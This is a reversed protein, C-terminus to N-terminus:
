GSHASQDHDESRPIMIEVTTGCNPKSEITLAGKEGYVHKLIQVVYSLGIGTHSSAEDRYSSYAAEIQEADMGEGQDIVRIRIHEEDGIDLQLEIHGAGEKMGHHIANEVLPQLIFRPIKTDLIPDQLRELPHIFTLNYKVSQLLAYDKVAEIEDRLTTMESKGLNYYLLRNLASVLKVIETQDKGYAFWKITDLTNHVFHPNIKYFLQQIELLSKKKTEEEVRLLLNLIQVKMRQFQNLYVDFEDVHILNIQDRYNSESIRKLEKNFNNIPRYVMRWIVSAFVISIAISMLAVAYYRIIWTRAEKTYSAAPIMAAVKWGYKSQEIYGYYVESGIMVKDDRSIRVPTHIPILSANESYTVNGEENILVHYAKMGYQSNSLIDQIKKYGSELYIYIDPLGSFSLKRVASIVQYDNIKSLTRHPGYYNIDRMVALPEGQGDFSDTRISRNIGRILDTGEKIFYTINSVNNNSFEILTLQTNLQELIRKKQYNNDTQFYETLNSGIVGEYALQQSTHNLSEVANELALKVQSLNSHIGAQMKQNWLSFSSFYTVLGIFVIPLLSTMFLMAVLRRKLSSKTLITAFSRPWNM